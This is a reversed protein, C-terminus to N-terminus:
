CCEKNILPRNDMMQLRLRDDQYPYANKLEQISLQIIHTKFASLDPKPSYLVWQGQRRHDILHNLKIISLHRSIKSQPLALAHILECVCLEGQEFILVLCRLRTEDSLVKYFNDMIVSNRM